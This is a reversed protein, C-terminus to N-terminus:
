SALSKETTAVIFRNLAEMSTVWNPGVKVAELKIGKIGRLVWRSLTAKDPRAGSINQLEVRAQSFTLVSESLIRSVTEATNAKPPAVHKPTEVYKPQQHVSSTDAKPKRSPM